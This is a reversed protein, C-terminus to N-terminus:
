EDDVERIRPDGAQRQPFCFPEYLLKVHAAEEDRTQHGRTVYKLGDFAKLLERVYREKERCIVLSADPPVVVCQGLQRRVHRDAGHAVRQEGGGCASERGNFAAHRADVQDKRGDDVDVVVGSVRDDVDARVTLVGLHDPPHGRSENPLRLGVPHERRQFVEGAVAVGGHVGMGVHAHDLTVPLLEIPHLEPRVLDHQGPRM